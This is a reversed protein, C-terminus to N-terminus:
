TSRTSQAPDVTPRFHRSEPVPAVGTSSGRTTLTAVVPASTLVLAYGWNGVKSIPEGPVLWVVAVVLAVAVLTAVLLAPSVPYEVDHPLAPGFFGGVATLGGIYAFLGATARFTATAVARVPRFPAWHLWGLVARAATAWAFVAVFIAGATPLEPHIVAYAVWLAAAPMVLAVGPRVSRAVAVPAPRRHLEKAAQTMNLHKALVMMIELQHLTPNRKM